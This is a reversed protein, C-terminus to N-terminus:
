EHPNALRNAVFPHEAIKELVEIPSDFEDDDGVHWVGDVGLYVLFLFVKEEQSAIYWSTAGDSHTTPRFISLRTLIQKVEETRSM